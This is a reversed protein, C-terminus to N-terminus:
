RGRGSRYINLLHELAGRPDIRRVDHIVGGESRHTDCAKLVGNRDIKATTRDDWDSEDSISTIQIDSDGLLKRIGEFTLNDGSLYDHPTFLEIRVEENHDADIDPNIDSCKVHEGHRSCLPVRDDVVQVITGGDLTYDLSFDLADVERVEVGQEESYSPLTGKDHLVWLTDERASMEAMRDGSAILGEFENLRKEIEPLVIEKARQLEEPTLKVEGDAQEVEPAATETVTVTATPQPSEWDEASCATTNFVTGAAIGALALKKFLGPRRSDEGQEVSSTPATSEKNRAMFIKGKKQRRTKEPPQPTPIAGIISEREKNTLYNQLKEIKKCGYVDRM